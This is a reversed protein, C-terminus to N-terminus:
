RPMSGTRFTAFEAALDDVPGRFPFKAPYEHSHVDESREVTIVVVAAAVGMRRYDRTM